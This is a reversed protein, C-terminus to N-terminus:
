SVDLKQEAWSFISPYKLTMRKLLGSHYTKQATKEEFQGNKMYDQLQHRTFAVGDAAISRNIEREAAFELWQCLDDEHILNLWKPDHYKDKDLLSDILKQREESYLGAARVISTNSHLNLISKEADLLAKGKFSAPKPNTSEDIVPELNGEYVSTSSLFTCHFGTQQKHLEQMLRSVAHIYTQRYAPETREDPALIVYVQELKPLEPLKDSVKLLDLALHKDSWAKETRSLTMPSQGQAKLYHYFRKGLKGTGVILTNM